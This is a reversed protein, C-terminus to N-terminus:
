QSTTITYTQRIFCSALRITLDEVLTPTVESTFGASADSADGSSPQTPSSSGIRINTFTVFEEPRSAPKRERKPRESLAPSPKVQEARAFFALAAWTYGLSDPQYQQVCQPEWMEALIAHEGPGSIPRKICPHLKDLNDPYFSHFLALRRKPESCIVRSPFLHKRGWRSVASEWGDSEYLANFNEAKKSLTSPYRVTDYYAM